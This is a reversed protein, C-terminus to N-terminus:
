KAELFVPTLKASKVVDADKDQISGDARRTVGVVGARERV